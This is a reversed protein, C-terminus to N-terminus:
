LGALGILDYAQQANAAFKGKSGSAYLKQVFTIKYPPSLTNVWDVTMGSTRCSCFIINCKEAKFIELSSLLRSNPDGQSEIGITKGKINEIVVKIDRGRHLERYIAKPYKSRLLELLRIIVDSKGSSGAGQLAYLNTM